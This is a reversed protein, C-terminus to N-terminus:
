YGPICVANSQAIYQDYQVTVSQPATKGKMSAIVITMFDADILKEAADRKCGCLTDNQAIGMCVKYFEIKQEASVPAALAPVTFMGFAVLGAAMVLTKM